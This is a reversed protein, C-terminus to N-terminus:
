VGGVSKKGRKRSEKEEVFREALTRQRSFCAALVCSCVSSVRGMKTNGQGSSAM